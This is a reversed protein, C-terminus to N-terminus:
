SNVTSVNEIFFFFYFNISCISANMWETRAQYSPYNSIFVKEGDAKKEKKERLSERRIEVDLVNLGEVGRSTKHYNIEIRDM